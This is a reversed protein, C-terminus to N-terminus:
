TTLKNIKNFVEEFSERQFKIVKSGATIAGIWEDNRKEITAM